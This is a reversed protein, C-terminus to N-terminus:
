KLLKEPSGFAIIVPGGGSAAFGGEGRPRCCFGAREFDTPGECMHLDSGCINTTTRPPRETFGADPVQPIISWRRCWPRAFM